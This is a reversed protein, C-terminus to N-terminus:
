VMLKGPDRAQQSCLKPSRPWCLQMLWNRILFIDIDEMDTDINMYIPIYIPIYPDYIYIFIPIM